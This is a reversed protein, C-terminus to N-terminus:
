GLLLISRGGMGVDTIFATGGNLIREDATPVHTHTGVIASVQGDFYAAMCMKESSAEAHMDIIIVQAITKLHVLAAEVARIPCSVLDRMFVRGQVNIVGVVTDQVMFTTAGVGPCGSPFNIPRLIDKYQAFYPIIDKKAWCHNGTTVIDAHNAKYFEMIRPTIGRGDYASNEGNVIVMDANHLQKLQAIHKKYLARGPLGVLDGIFLIKINGHM